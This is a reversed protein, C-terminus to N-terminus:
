HAWCRENKVRHITLRISLRIGDTPINPAQLIGIGTHDKCGIRWLATSTVISRPYNTKSERRSACGCQCRRPTRNPRRALRPYWEWLRSQGAEDAADFYTAWQLRLPESPGAEFKLYGNKPAVFEHYGGPFYESGTFETMVVAASRSFTSHGSIFGPFAPTVFTRRQYPILGHARMWQLPTHDNMRDGPEGPWSWVAVEGKFFRLHHHREGPASSEETILEILGDVLPLGDPHYSPDDPLDRQGNDAMWRIITIPRAGLTERKLEWAAIAADHVAAAVSFTFTVDWTLRDVPTGENWPKLADQPMTDSIEQALKVWHGPPTESTPGDAWMEAVVRTFDGRRVVNSAYPEGTAPNVAHGTGDNTGLTNNGRAGPGIDILVDDDIDLEATKQIVEIIWDIMAPDSVRPAGDGIDSYLGTAADEQLSFPTVDRWQPGIYPQVADDLVIGNQTQATGLNLQQWVDVDDVNTGPRDIIMTPNSSTWGTTDEYNASENAGDNIYAQVISQGIRNGVAIPDDGDDHTDDPDLELVDMFRRYCDLSVAGGIANEFRHELLRLAAYSIAIDRDDAVSTSEISEDVQYGTVEPEYAAWADFIAVSLHHLNRAHVPPHPFDQRISDLAQEVWRRAITGDPVRDIADNPCSMDPPSVRNPEVRHRGKPGTVVGNNLEPTLVARWRGVPGGEEDVWLAHISQPSGGNLQVPTWKSRRARKRFAFGGAGAVYVMDEDSVTVGQLLPAGLPTDDVFGDDINGRLVLGRSSGGVIFLEDENGTLTFLQDQTPTDVM